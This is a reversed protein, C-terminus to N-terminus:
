RPCELKFDLVLYSLLRAWEWYIPKSRMEKLNQVPM